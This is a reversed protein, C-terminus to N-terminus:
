ELGETHNIIVGMMKMSILIVSFCDMKVVSGSILSRVIASFLVAQAKKVFMGM